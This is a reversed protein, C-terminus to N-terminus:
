KSFFLYSILIVISLLPRLNKLSELVQISSYNTGTDIIAVKNNEIIFHISAFNSRIYKSDVCYINNGLSVSKIHKKKM